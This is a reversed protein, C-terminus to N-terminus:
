MRARAQAVGHADHAVRFRSAGEPSTGSGGPRMAAVIVPNGTYGRIELEQSDHPKASGPAAVNERSM